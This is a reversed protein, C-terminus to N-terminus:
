AIKNSCLKLYLLEAIIYLAFFYLLFIEIVDGINSYLTNRSKLPMQRIIVANTFIQTNQSYHGYQDIFASIGSNATRAVPMGNEIARFRILNLHQYPATSKGFWGDNTINVMMKSGHRIAERVLDGFIADYCIYPTWNYPAYVPTEKGPVFDGEGFDVYNLIPFIDDFPIRESFPVLHKKIYRNTNGYEGPNFLFSANYIDYKRDSNASNRKYDLAGTLLQAGKENAINQLLKITNPQRRIHDPVATEALVILNTGKPVSDKIMDVTKKIIADFRAKSWKAGQQISPQVLAVTPNQQSKAGYFPAAEPKSLVFTGHVALVIFIIVPLALLIKKSSKFECLVKAVIQNSMVILITYGFIGIYSLLQLMHLDFGLAYGLHSWPFSFDGKTRTMELGAYFIPFMILFIHYGKVTIKQALKYTFAALTNYASFFAILLFLGLLILGSPATEVHMVNYIWYYNISNYLIGSWFTAFLVQGMAFKNLAIFWPVLILLAASGCPMPPYAFAYIGWSFTSLALALRAEKEKIKLYNWRLFKASWLLALPVTAFALQEISAHGVRGATNYDLLLFLFETISFCYVQRKFNQRINKFVFFLIALALTIFHANQFYLGPANERNIFLAVNTAVLVILYVFFIRPQTKLYQKIKKLIM